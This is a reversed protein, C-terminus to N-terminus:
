RNSMPRAERGLTREVSERATADNRDHLPSEADFVSVGSASRADKEGTSSRHTSLTGIPMVSKTHDARKLTACCRLFRSDRDLRTWTQFGGIGNTAGVVAGTGSLPCFRQSDTSDNM